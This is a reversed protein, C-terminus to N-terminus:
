EAFALAALDLHELPLCEEVVAALTQQPMPQLNDAVLHGQETTVATGHAAVVALLATFALAALMPPRLTPEETAGVVVSLGEAEQLAWTVIEAALDLPAWEAAAGALVVLAVEVVAVVDAVSVRM